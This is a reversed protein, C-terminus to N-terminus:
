CRPCFPSRQDYFYSFLRMGGVSKLQLHDCGLRFQPRRAAVSTGSEVLGMGYRALTACIQKVDLHVSSADPSLPHTIGPPFSTITVMPLISAGIPTM